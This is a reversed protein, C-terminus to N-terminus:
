IPPRDLIGLVAKLPWTLPIVILASLAAAWVALGMGFGDSLAGFLAPTLASASLGVTYFVGFARARREAPVLEAVTGYLVSSTGNLALGLIPLLMLARELSTALVVVMFLATAGETLIVTRLIGVRRAALGCVFKGAAGGAFVLSLALGVTTLDAGKRALLFPLLVLFGARSASDFAAIASLALFGRRALAAPLAAAPKPADQASAASRATGTQAAWLIAVAAAVLGLGVLVIALRWQWLAILIATLAPLATKGLDGSFNYTGLAARLRPGEYARATLASGIPHQVSAGLGALALGLALGTFIGTRSGLAGALVALLVFGIGVLCTGLALTRREGLREAVLGSPLQFGALCAMYISRLAGLAALDFGFQAQWVPLLVYILETAGDHLFHGASSAALVRRAHGTAPQGLTEAGPASM